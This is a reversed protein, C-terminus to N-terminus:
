CSPDDVGDGTASDRDRELERIDHQLKAAQEAAASEEQQLQDREDGTGGQPNDEDIILGLLRNM